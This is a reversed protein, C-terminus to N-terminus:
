NIGADINDTGVNVFEGTEDDSDDVDYMPKLQYGYWGQKKQGYNRSSGMKKELYEKLEARTLRKSDGGDQSHWDLYRAFIEAITLCAEKDPSEVIHDDTFDRFLDMRVRYNETFEVVKPPERLGDKKWIEYYKTLIWIFPEKWDDFKDSLEEDRVFHRENTKDVLDSLLFQSTFEVSRVRRWTAEDDHPLQPLHNCVLIMKFQPKFEVPNQYLARAQIKDGGTLEKMLGVNLTTKQDPEQLVAFRRGKTRAVEPSAEGSSKRNRTLLTIPLNVAYEGIALQYLEIIKSKGNAGCGTWIHFKENRNAGNLFSALLTLVYDRVETDTLVQSVFEMVDGVLTEDNDQIAEDITSYKELHAPYEIGTSMSVNDEPRGNRFEMKQFDFVGNDFGLLHHYEDLKSAFKGSRDIFLEVSETMVNNKFSTSQINEMTRKFKDLSEKCDILGELIEHCNADGGKSKNVINGIMSYYAEPIDKSIKSRLLVDGASIRWRHEDFHYFEGFKGRNGVCVFDNGYMTHLVQAIDYPQVKMDSLAKNLKDDGVSIERDISKLISEYAEHRLINQYEEPNDQSVWWRLSGIGLGGEDYMNQWEEMCEAPASTAYRSDRQSFTIWEDLLSNDINHINHLAWGVEIWSNRTSSRTADLSKVLMKVIEMESPKLKSKKSKKSRGKPARTKRAMIKIEKLEDELKALMSENMQAQTRLISELTESDGGTQQFMEETVPAITKSRLSLLRVLDAHSYVDTPLEDVVGGDLRYIRSLLYPESSVKQSGYMMWNNRDVVALDVVDAMTNSLDLDGLIGDIEKLVSDRFLLQYKTKTVLYPFMLHIGDKAIGLEANPEEPITGPKVQWSMASEPKETVFCDLERDQIYYYESIIRSYLAVVDKVHQQTYRRELSTTKYRFDLDVKVPTYETQAETMRLVQNNTFCEETYLQYYLELKDDPINYSGRPVISTHSWSDGKTPYCLHQRLFTKFSMKSIPSSM